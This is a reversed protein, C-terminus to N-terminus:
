RVCVFFSSTNGPSRTKSSSAHPAKEAQVRSNLLEVWFINLSAVENTFCIVSADVPSLINCDWDKWLLFFFICGDILFDHQNFECTSESFSSCNAGNILDQFVCVTEQEERSAQSNPALYASIVAADGDLDWEEYGYCTLFHLSLADWIDNEYDTSQRLLNSVVYFYQWCCAITKISYKFSLIQLLIGLLLLIKLHWSTFEVYVYSFM